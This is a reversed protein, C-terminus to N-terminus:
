RVPILGDGALLSQGADGLTFRVLKDAEPTPAGYTAIYFSRALPYRGSLITVRNMPVGDITFAKLEKTLMHLSTFGIAWPSAQIAALMEARSTVMHGRPMEDGALVLDRLSRQLRATPDRTLLEIKVDPGGLAKWSVIELTYIQKLQALTLNSVPNAPNVVIAIGDKAILYNRVLPDDEEPKLDRTLLAVDIAGRRLAIVGAAAGGADSVVRISPERKAFATVLTELYRQMTSAGAILLMPTPPARRCAALLALAVLLRRM